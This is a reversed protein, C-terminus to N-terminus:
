AGTPPKLEAVVIGQPGATLAIEGRKLRLAEEGFVERRWGRLAPVDPEEELALRDIDASQAMLKAAVDLDAARARLLVRLLEALASAKADLKLTEEQVPWDAKPLALGVKIAKLVAQTTESSRNDRQFARSRGLDEITKPKLQALEALTEDKLVRGRPLNRKQAEEERWRALERLASLAPGNPNRLRIRRWAEEPDARHQAPDALAAMEESIWELRDAKAIRATLKEYIVRLHTVDSVAYILQRQSLPRASWDSGRLSKDVQAGALDRALTEYSAQEGFGCVMAAVQTDMLPAPVLGGLLSFIELDQRAAHFVKIVQPDRMLEFLPALDMEAVMPDILAAGQAEHAEPTEGPLPPRAIQVLCLIPWYTRERMFETDLTVYPAARYEDCLAQLDTKTKIFRM